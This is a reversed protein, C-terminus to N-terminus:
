SISSESLAKAFGAIAYSTALALSYARLVQWDDLVKFFNCSKVLVSFYRGWPLDTAPCVVKACIFLSFLM